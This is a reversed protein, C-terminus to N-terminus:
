HMSEFLKNLEEFAKLLVTDVENRATVAATIEDTSKNKYLLYGRDADEAYFVKYHGIGYPIHISIDYRGPYASYDDSEYISNNIENYMEKFNGDISKHYERNGSDHIIWTMCMIVDNLYVIEDAGLRKNGIWYFFSGELLQSYSDSLNFEVAFAEKNGILM